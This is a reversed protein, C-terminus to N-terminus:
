IQRQNFLRQQIDRKTIVASKSSTHRNANHSISTDSSNALLLSEKHTHNEDKDKCFSKAKVTQDHGQDQGLLAIVAAGTATLIGQGRVIQPAKIHPLTLPECIICSTTIAYTSLKCQIFTNLNDTDNNLLFSNSKSSAYKLVCNSKRCQLVASCVLPYSGRNKKVCLRHVECTARQTKM